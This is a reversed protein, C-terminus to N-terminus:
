VDSNEESPIKQEPLWSLTKYPILGAFRTAHLGALTQRATWDIRAGVCQPFACPM